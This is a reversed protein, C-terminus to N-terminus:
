RGAKIKKKLNEVLGGDKIMQVIFAPPPEVKFAKNSTKNNIAGREFDIELVDGKKVFKTIKTCVLVPIGLNIANRYFIRAFSEAIIASVGAYKLCVVAQERSSGCGFNRGAVIIDGRRVNSAFDIDANAMAHKAMEKPDSIPLFRGPYILDTNINDGFKWAKGKLKTM